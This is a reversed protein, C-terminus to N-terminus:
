VKFKKILSRGSNIGPKEILRHLLYSVATTLGLILIFALVFRALSGQGKPLSPWIRTLVLTIVINHILYTGYSCDALTKRGPLNQLTQDMAGLLRYFRRRAPPVLCIFYGAWYVAALLWLFNEKCTLAYVPFAAWFWKSKLVPQGQLLVLAVVMGVAFVHLKLPLISPQPFYVLRGAAADDYYGVLLHAAAAALTCLFFFLGTKLYNLALALFPFCVYFQMELTLSWDPMACATSQQPNFGFLFSFRLLLWQWTPRAAPDSHAPTLGLAVLLLLGFYYLPAIRFFRRLYFQLWTTAKAWPEKERREWYHFLMLFGSINMFVDVAVAASGFVPLRYGVYDSTHWALVMWAALIRIVDLLPIAEAPRGPHNSPIM